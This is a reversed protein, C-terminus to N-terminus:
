AESRLAQVPDVRAARRAPLGSAIAATALVLVPVLAFAVPDLWPMDVLLRGMGLTSLARALPRAGAVGLLVAVAALGAGHRLIITATAARSAGGPM